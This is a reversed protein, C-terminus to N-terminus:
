NTATGAFKAAVEAVRKGLYAATRLDSDPPTVDAPADDSFAMAGLWSGVRNLDGDSKGPFLDLGVWIMGHQAAFLAMSVLSNLKDGHMSGSNTFGAAIKNRWKQPIWATRTSEEMFTKLQASVLGNYTPSGFIIADSEELAKWDVAGDRVAMLTATAGEVEEVGKAVHAALKATHGFGSDYVIAVKM